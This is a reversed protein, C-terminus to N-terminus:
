MVEDYYKGIARPSLPALLTEAKSNLAKSLARRESEFVITATQEEISRLRAPTIKTKEALQDRTLHRMQRAAQLVTKVPGTSAPEPQPPTLKPTVAPTKLERVKALLVDVRDSLDKVQHTTM